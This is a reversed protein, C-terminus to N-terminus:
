LQLDAIQLGPPRPRNPGPLEPGRLAHMSQPGVPHRLCHVGVLPPKGGVLLPPRPAAALYLLTLVNGVISAQLGLLPAM